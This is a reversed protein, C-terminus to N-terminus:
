PKEKIKSTREQLETDQEHEVDLAGITFSVTLRVSAGDRVATEVEFDLLDSLVGADELWRRAVREAADHANIKRPM